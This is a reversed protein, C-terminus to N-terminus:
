ILQLTLPSKYIYMGWLISLAGKNEREKVFKLNSPTDNKRKKRSLIRNEQLAMRQRKIKRSLIQKRLTGDKSEEAVYSQLRGLSNGITQRGTRQM